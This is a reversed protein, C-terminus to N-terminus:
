GEVRYASKISKIVDLNDFHKYVKKMSAQSAQHTVIIIEADPNHPNPQQVVSDLSVEYEAFVQTIQALVGAKDEVHLLIFNKYAIQDDTKLKKEKYPTLARQGNVGLKMNKIVAVLDAVVSTATPMEGAGPGYFMTEGVAEGYVYVANFVGNVAALPHSTSVMTPQVVVSIQDDQREAIGLLKMEYGLRKAFAIDEKKIQSIGRVDVDELAVDSHFGLTALIAMKRAADLGEVDSTPDSEAYGLAQAEKLVEEYGAGEQSMKTLIFNTTGNVIGMIKKIRDSSFGEMLTRIIPIGGAVSAEYFVDCRKEKAKAMIERGHVAMLDKNATVVHKGQELADMIYQKTPEIGGMVEVVVDIDPNHIIDGAEETLMEEPIAVNRAKQLDKVLVKEIRIPSGVQSSLDDQHGEVIRVVGTGVTGLGLLGVKIPKM